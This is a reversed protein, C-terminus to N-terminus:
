FVRRVLKIGEVNILNLFAQLETILGEEAYADYYVTKGDVSCKLEPYKEKLIQELSKKDVIKTATHVSNMHKSLGALTSCQKGCEPCKSGDLDKVIVPSM